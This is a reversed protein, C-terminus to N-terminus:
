NSMENFRFAKGPKTTDPEAPFLCITGRWDKELPGDLVWLMRKESWTAWSEEQHLSAGCSSKNDGLRISIVESPTGWVFSM